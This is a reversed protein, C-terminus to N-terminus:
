NKFMKRCAAPKLWRLIQYLGKGQIEKKGRTTEPNKEYVRKQEISQTRQCFSDFSTLLFM